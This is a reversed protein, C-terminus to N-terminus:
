PGTELFLSDLKKLAGDIDYRTRNVIIVSGLGRDPYLRMQSRYAAGGGDKYLYNENDIRGIHWGLTMDINKGSNLTQQETLLKRGNSSLLRSESSLQDQLFRSFTRATGVLGSFAKGNIYVMKIHVWRGEPDGVIDPRVLFGKLMNMISYRALYGKAYQEKSPLRYGLQESSLGLPRTINELVYNEFSQGSVREVVQGLYWYGINSYRYRDGPPSKLKPSEKAVEQLAEWEDFSSHEERTHIWKLPIPNPIGSTHSLLQRITVTGYPHDPVYRSLPDGLDIKKKEVLQLVATATFTKTMSYGHMLHESTMAVKNSVDALGASGSFLVKDSRVVAYQVGPLDNNDVQQRLYRAAQGNSSNIDMATAQGIGAQFVILFAFVVALYQRNLM